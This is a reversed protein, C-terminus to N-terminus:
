VEFLDGVIVSFRASIVPVLGDVQYIGDMM